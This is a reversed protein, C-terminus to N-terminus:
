VGRDEQHRQLGRARQQTGTLCTKCRGMASLRVRKCWLRCPRGVAVESVGGELVKRMIRKFIPNKRDCKLHFRNWIKPVNLWM